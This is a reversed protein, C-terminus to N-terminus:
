MRALTNVHDAIEEISMGNDYYEQMEAEHAMPYALAKASIRVGIKKQEELDKLVQAAISERAEKIPKSVADVAKAIIADVKKMDEKSVNGPELESAMEAFDVWKNTAQRVFRLAASGNPLAKIKDEIKQITPKGDNNITALAHQRALRKVTKGPDAAEMNAIWDNEAARGAQAATRPAARLQQARQAPTAQQKPKISPVKRPDSDDLEEEDDPGAKPNAKQQLAKKRADFEAKRKAAIEQQKKDANAFVGFIEDLQEETLDQDVMEVFKKFSFKM